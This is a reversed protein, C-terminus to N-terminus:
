ERIGRQVYTKGYHSNSGFAVFPIAIAFWFAAWNLPLIGESIHMAHSDTTLLLCCCLSVGLTVFRQM